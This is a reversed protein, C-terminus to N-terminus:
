AGAVPGRAAAARVTVAALVVAAALATALGRRQLRTRLRGCGAAVHEAVGAAAAAAPEPQGGEREAATAEADHRQQATALLHHPPAGSACRLEGALLEAVTPCDAQLLLEQHCSTRPASSAASAVSSAPAPATTTATTTISAQTSTSPGSSVAMHAPAASGGSGSRVVYKVQGAMFPSAPTSLWAIASAFDPPLRPALSFRHHLAWEGQMCMHLTWVEIAPGAPEGATAEPVEEPAAGAQGDAAAGGREQGQEGEQELLRELRFGRGDATWTTRGELLPLPESPRLSYGVDCFRPPEGSDPPFSVLVSAHTLPPTWAGRWVEGGLITVTFGLAQLAAGLLTAQEFCVGGERRVLMKNTLSAINLTPEVPSGCLIPITCFPLEQVHRSYIAHLSQPSSPDVAARELGIARLYADVDM